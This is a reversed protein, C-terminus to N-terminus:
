PQATGLSTIKCQLARRLVTAALELAVDAARIMRGMTLFGHMQDSMHVFTVPVDNTELVKAYEAGEDRLPDYGATLLFAPALGRFRPARLPSARWDAQDQEGGLYHMHFYRVAEITLPFRSFDQEFSPHRMSMEVSPYLLLQFCLQPLDGDRAMHAMVASLNGGASDGGGALRASDVMLTHANQSVWRIAAACDDIGAPFKHDPALRYEVSVVVCRAESALTRCIVDHTDCDGICFGGGHIFVLASATHEPAGIGRYLRLPIDGAPGAATLDQVQAVEPPDPTLVKRSARYVARAEEPSCVQIPPRGAVKILDLVREADPDLSM